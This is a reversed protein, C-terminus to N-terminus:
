SELKLLYLKKIKKMKKKLKEITEKNDAELKAYDERNAKNEQLEARLEKNMSKQEDLENKLEKKSNKLEYRLTELEKNIKQDNEVALAIMKEEKNELSSIKENLVETREKHEKFDKHSLRRATSNEEGREMGLIKATETQLESLKERDIHERRFVQKGEDNLSCFM